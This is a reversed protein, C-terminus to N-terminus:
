MADVYQDVEMPYGAQGLSELIQSAKDPKGMKGYCFLLAKLIEHDFQM